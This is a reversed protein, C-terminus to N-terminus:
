ILNSSNTKQRADNGHDLVFTFYVALLVNAFFMFHSICM